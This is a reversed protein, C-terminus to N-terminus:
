WGPSVVCVIHISNQHWFTTNMKHEEKYFVIYKITVNIFDWREKKCDINVRQVWPVTCYNFLIICWEHLQKIFWLVHVTSKSYPGYALSIMSQSFLSFLYVTTGNLTHVAFSCPWYIYLIYVTPGDFYSLLSCVTCTYSYNWETLHYM